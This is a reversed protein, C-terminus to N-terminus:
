KQSVLRRSLNFEQCFKSIGFNRAEFNWPKTVGLRWNWFESIEVSRCPQAFVPTKKAPELASRPPAINFAPTLPPSHAIHGHDLAPTKIATVPISEAEFKERLFFLLFFTEMWLRKEKFFM